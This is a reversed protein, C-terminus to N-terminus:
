AHNTTFPPTHASVWAPATGTPTTVWNNEFDYRIYRTSPTLAPPCGGNYIYDVTQQITYGTIGEALQFQGGSLGNPILMLSDYYGNHLNATGLNLANANLAHRHTFTGPNTVLGANVPAGGQTMLQGNWYLDCDTTSSASGYSSGKFDFLLHVYGNANTNIASNGSVWKSTSSTSGTISQNAADHLIWQRKMSNSTSSFRWEFEITNSSISNMLIRIFNPSSNGPVSQGWFWRLNTDATNTSNQKFWFSWTNNNVPAYTGAPYISSYDQIGDFDAAYLNNPDCLPGVFYNRGFTTIM